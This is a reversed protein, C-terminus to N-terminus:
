ALVERERESRVHAQAHVQRTHLGADHEVPDEVAERVQTEIGGLVRRVDGAHREPRRRRQRHEEASLPTGMFASSRIRTLTSSWTTSGGSRKSPWRGSFHISNAGFFTWRSPTSTHTYSSLTIGFMPSLATAPRGGSSYLM